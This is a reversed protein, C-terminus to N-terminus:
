RFRERSPLPIDRGNGPLRNKGGHEQYLGRLPGRKMWFRDLGSINVLWGAVLVAVIVGGAILAFRRKYSFDYRRLLLIGATLGAAALLLAWWPFSSLLLTLREAGRPGHARLSFAILSVFFISTVFLGVLGALAAVSGLVFHWKPRMKIEGAHIRDMVRDPFATPKSNLPTENPM